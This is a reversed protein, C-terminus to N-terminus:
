LLAKIGPLDGFAHMLKARDEANISSKEVPPKAPAATAHAIVDDIKYGPLDGFCHVLNARDQESLSAQLAVAQRPTASAAALDVLSVLAPDNTLAVSHISTVAGTVPNFTFVPSLYRYERSAVMTRARETWEIQTMFLGHGERWELGKFWGAAPAPQGNTGKNLIQHEYDIIFAEGNTPKVAIVQAAVIADIRWDTITSNDLNGPRGDWTRFPGAPLIRVAAGPKLAAPELPTSLENSM